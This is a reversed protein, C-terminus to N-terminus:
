KLMKGPKGSGPLLELRSQLLVLQILSSVPYTCCHVRGIFFDVIAFPIIIYMSDLNIEIIAAAAADM